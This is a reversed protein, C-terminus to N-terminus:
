GLGEEESSPNPLLVGSGIRSADTETLCGGGRGGGRFPLPKLRDLDIRGPRIRNEPGAEYRHRRIM